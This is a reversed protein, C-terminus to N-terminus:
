DEFPMSSRAGRQLLLDPDMNIKRQAVQLQKTHVYAKNQKTALSVMSVMSVQGDEMLAFRLRSFLSGHSKCNAIAVYKDPSQPVYPAELNSRQGCMPCKPQQAAESLLAASITGYAGAPSRLRRNREVHLLRRPQQAYRLVAEKDPLRSFVLATYYADHLANHFNKDEQAEIQLFDMAAKLGKRDKGMEFVDSFLRQIDCLPPLQLSCQHFDMNQKLVSVDDCGWTLLLYDEGCWSSFQEMAELFTSAGELTEDDLRTMRKIRPHIKVYHVPRIPLSLTDVIQMEQDLKVAGIQIMEFMLQDGVAKFVSSQYSMPQNWELDIVIYQM